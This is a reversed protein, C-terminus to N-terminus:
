QARALLLALPTSLYVTSCSTRPARSTPKPSDRPWGGPGAAGPDQPCPHPVRPSNGFHGWVPLRAPNHDDSRQCNRPQATFHQPRRWHCGLSLFALPGPLGDRLCACHGAAVSPSLRLSHKAEDVGYRVKSGKPGPAAVWSPYVNLSPM